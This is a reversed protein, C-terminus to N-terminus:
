QHQRKRRATLALAVGGLLGLAWSSPEPVASLLYSHGNSGMAIIQGLDNVDKAETLYAGDTLTVLSNLDLMNTGGPGTLFAHALGSATDAQGVVQGLNNIGYAYSHRGGLTGLDQFVRSTSSLDVYGARYGSFDYKGDKYFTLQMYGVVQNQNNVELAASHSSVSSVNLYTNSTAPFLYANRACNCHEIKSGVITGLDNISNASAELPKSYHGSLGYPTVDKVASTSLTIVATGRVDNASEYAVLVDGNNNIAKAGSSTGSVTGLNTLGNASLSTVFANAAGSTTDSWGVIQGANNIGSAWSNAGGLTGLDTFGTGNAGTAFAHTAGSSTNYYGVVQGSANLATATTAGLDTASWNQAHAVQGATIGALALAFTMRAITTLKM